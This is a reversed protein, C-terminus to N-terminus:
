RSRNASTITSSNWSVLRSCTSSDLQDAAVVQEQDAVLELADVAEAPGLDLDEAAAAVLRPSRPRERQGLVVARPRVHDVQDVLDVAALEAVAVLLQADSRRTRRSGAGPAARDLQQQGVAVGEVPRRARAQRSASAADSASRIASSTAGLASRAPSTTSSSSAPM